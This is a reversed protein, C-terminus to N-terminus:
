EKKYVESEKEESIEVEQTREKLGIIWKRDKRGEM